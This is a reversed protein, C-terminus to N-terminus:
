HAELSIQERGGCWDVNICGWSEFGSVSVDGGNIMLGRAASRGATKAVTLGCELNSEIAQIVPLAQQRAKARKAILEAESRPRGMARAACHTGFFRVDGADHGETVELAVTQKLSTRGCCDCTTIDDTTGHIKYKAKM